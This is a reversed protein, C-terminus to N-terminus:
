IHKRFVGAKIKLCKLWRNVRNEATKPFCRSVYCPLSKRFGSTRVNEPVGTWLETQDQLTDATMVASNDIQKTNRSCAATETQPRFKPDTEFFILPQLQIHHSLILCVFGRWFSNIPVRESGAASAQLEYVPHVRYVFSVLRDRGRRVRSRHRGGVATRIWLLDHWPTYRQWFSHSLQSIMLNHLEKFWLKLKHTGVAKVKLLDANQMCPIM